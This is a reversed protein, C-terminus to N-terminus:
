TLKVIGIDDIHRLGGRGDRAGDPGPTRAHFLLAFHGVVRFPDPGKGTAITPL